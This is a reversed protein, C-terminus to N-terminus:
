PQNSAKNYEADEIEVTGMARGHLLFPLIPLVLAVCTVKDRGIHCLEYVRDYM